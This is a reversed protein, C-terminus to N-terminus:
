KIKNEKRWMVYKLPKMKNKDCENCYVQYKKQTEIETLGEDTIMGISPKRVESINLSMDVEDVPVSKSMKINLNPEIWTYTQREKDFNLMGYRKYYGIYEECKPPPLHMAVFLDRVLEDLTKEYANNRLYDEIAELWQAGYNNRFPHKFSM